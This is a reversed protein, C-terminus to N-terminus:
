LRTLKHRERGVKSTCWCSKTACAVAFEFFFEEASLNWSLARGPIDVFHRGTPLTGQGGAADM